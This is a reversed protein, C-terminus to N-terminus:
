AGEHPKGDKGYLAFELANTVSGFKERSEKLHEVRVNATTWKGSYRPDAKFGISRLHALRKESMYSKRSRDFKM